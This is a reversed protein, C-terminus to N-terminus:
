DDGKKRHLIKKRRKRKAKGSAAHENRRERDWWKDTCGGRGKSCFKGRHNKGEDVFWGRCVWCQALRQWGQDHFFHLWLQAAVAKRADHEAMLGPTPQDTRPNFQVVLRVPVKKFGYNFASVAAELSPPSAQTAFSGLPRPPTPPTRGASQVIYAAYGWAKRTEDSLPRNLRLANLGDALAQLKPRKLSRRYGRGIELFKKTDAMSGSVKRPM